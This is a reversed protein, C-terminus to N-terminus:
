FLLGLPIFSGLGLNWALSKIMMDRESGLCAKHHRIFPVSRFYTHQLIGSSPFTQTGLVLLLIVQSCSGLHREMGCNFCLFLLFVHVAALNMLLIVHPCPRGMHNGARFQEPAQMVFFEPFGKLYYAATLKVINWLCQNQLSQFIM